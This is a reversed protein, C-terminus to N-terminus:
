GRAVLVLVTLVAGAVALAVCLDPHVAGGSGVIPRRGWSDVAANWARLAQDVSEWPFARLRLRRYPSPFLPVRWAWPRRMIRVERVAWLRVHLPRRPKGEIADEAALDRDFDARCPGCLNPRASTARAELCGECYGDAIMADRLTGRESATLPLGVSALM